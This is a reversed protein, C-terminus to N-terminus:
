CQPPRDPGGMCGLFVDFDGEDVDRDADLDATECGPALLTGSGSYCAQLDGFDDQDVDGDGDFDAHLGKKEPQGVTVVPWTNQGHVTQNVFNNLYDREFFRLGSGGHGQGTLIDLDGDGRFDFADAGSMMMTATYPQVITVGDPNSFQPTAGTQGSGVNRYFRADDEFKCAIFDKKGDGDWDVFSGLNPRVYEALGLSQPPDLRPDTDSRSNPFFVYGGEGDAFVLDKKGDNNWDCVLVSSRSGRDIPAGDASIRQGAALVPAADTGTNEFWTVWGGGDAVMLDKNGDSDWDCVDPRAHGGSSMVSLVQGGARLKEGTTFVPFLNGTLNRFYWVHGDTDGAILDRRGDNNWDCARVANQRIADCQQFRLTYPAGNQADRKVFQPSSPPGVNEYLWGYERPAEPTAAVTREWFRGVVFDPRGDGTFDAVKVASHADSIYYPQEFAIIRSAAFTPNRRPVTTDTNEFLHIPGPQTGAFLERDGDGDIDACDFRPNSLEIDAGGAKITVSNDVMLSNGTGRRLNRHLYCRNNTAMLVDIAGDGDGNWDPVFTIAPFWGGQNLPQGSATRMPGRDVFTLLGGHATTNEFYVVEGRYPGDLFSGFLDQDGDDDWDYLTITLWSRNSEARPLSLLNGGSSLRGRDVFRNGGVNEYCYVFSEVGAKFLDLDGDGDFDNFCDFHCANIERRKYEERFWDGDGVLGPYRDPQGVGSQVTDFYVTYRTCTHTPMVFNLTVRNIGYYKDIRWPLLHREYGARSADYILPQGAQDYGVVEITHEDFAGTGGTQALMQQFDLDVSAPCHSRPTIRPDLTLQVRFRRYWAARSMIRDRWALCSLM